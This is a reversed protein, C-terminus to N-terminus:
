SLPNSAFAEDLLPESKLIHNQLIREMKAEDVHHYWTGEPYILVIPGNQCIQLCDIKSRQVSGNVGILNLEKLRKKLYQWLAEGKELSCCDPGRCLFIHHKLNGIGLKATVEQIPPGESM